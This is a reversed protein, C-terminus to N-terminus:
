NLSVSSGKIRNQGAARSLLNDGRIEVNGDVDLTISARGCKFTLKRSATLTVENDKTVVQLGGGALLPINEAASADAQLAHAFLRGMIVPKALDGGEFLIAVSKGIDAVTMQALSRAMLPECQPNGGFNVMCALESTIGTLTAVVLGAVAATTSAASTPMTSSAPTAAAVNKVRTAKTATM